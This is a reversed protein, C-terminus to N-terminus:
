EEATIAGVPCSEVARRVQARLSEPPHEELVTVLGDSERQAFIDPATAVCMGSSCCKKRDATVRM